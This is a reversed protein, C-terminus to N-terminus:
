FVTDGGMADLPGILARARGFALPLICAQRNNPLVRRPCGQWLDFGEPLDPLPPLFLFDLINM